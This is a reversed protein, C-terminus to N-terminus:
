CTAGTVRVRGTSGSVIVNKGERKDNCLTVTGSDATGRPAFGIPGINGGGFTIGDPLTKQEGTSRYGGGEKREIRYASPALFVVRLHASRAVAQSKVWHFESQLQRVASNLRYTPLQSAWNPVAIAALVGCIALGTVLDLLTFARDEFVARKALTRNV